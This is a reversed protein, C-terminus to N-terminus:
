SADADQAEPIIKKQMKWKKVMVVQEIIKGM